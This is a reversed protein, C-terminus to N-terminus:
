LEGEDEGDNEPISHGINKEEGADQLIMEFNFKFLDFEPADYEKKIM